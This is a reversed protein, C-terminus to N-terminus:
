RQDKRVHPARDICRPCVPLQHRVGQNQAVAAVATPYHAFSAKGATASAESSIDDVVGVVTASRMGGCVMRMHLAGPGGDTLQAVHNWDRGSEMRYGILRGRLDETWWSTDPSAPTSM